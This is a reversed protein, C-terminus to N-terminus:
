RNALRFTDDAPTRTDRGADQITRQTGNMLDRIRTDTSAASPGKLTSGNISPAAYAMSWFYWWVAMEHKEGQQFINYYNSGIESFSVMDLLGQNTDGIVGSSTSASSRYAEFIVGKTKLYSVIGRAVEGTWRNNLYSRADKLFAPDLLAVRKPRAAAPLQNADVKDSLQQL